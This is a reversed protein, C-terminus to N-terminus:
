PFRCLARLVGFRSCIEVKRVTIAGQLYGALEEPRYFHNVHGPDDYADGYPVSVLLHAGPRVWRRLGLLVPVPDAIHEFVHAAWVADYSRNAAPAVTVDAVSFQLRDRVDRSERERLHCAIAIGIRSLDIGHVTAGNRALFIDSHGSGCGFDLIRGSIEPYDGLAKWEFHDKWFSLKLAGPNTLLREIMVRDCERGAPDPSGSGNIIRVIASLEPDLKAIIRHYIQRVM